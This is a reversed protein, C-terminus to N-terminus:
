TDQGVNRDNLDESILRLLVLQDQTSNTSLFKPTTSLGMRSMRKHYRGLDTKITFERLNRDSLDAILIAYM